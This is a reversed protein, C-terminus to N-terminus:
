TFQGPDFAFGAKGDVYGRRNTSSSSMIEPVSSGEAQADDDEDLMCCSCGRKAAQKLTWHEAPLVTDQLTKNAILILKHQFVANEIQKKYIHQLSLKMPTDRLWSCAADM